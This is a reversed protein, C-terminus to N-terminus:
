TLRLGKRGLWIRSLNPPRVHLATMYHTATDGSLLRGIAQVYWKAFRQQWTPPHTEYAREASQAIIRSGNYGTKLLKFTTWVEAPVDMEKLEHRYTWIFRDLYQSATLWKGNWCLRAKMGRRAADQRSRLYRFHSLTNGRPERRLWALACAKLICVGAMVFEPVNSDMVRIELTAPKTKRSRSYVMEDFQRRYLEGLPLVRFFKRSGRLVRNSATETLEDAWVPSNAAIAIVLPLHDHLHGALRRADEYSLKKGAVSLHAHAGAARDKWGGVLFIQRGRKARRKRRYLATNYKRLGSKLLFLGERITSFPRSNYETGITWDRTFREGQESVGKRHFAMRRSIRHAPTLVTYGELEVGVVVRQHRSLPKGM